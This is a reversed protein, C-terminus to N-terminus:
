SPRAVDPGFVRAFSEDDITVGIEALPKVVDRLAADLAVQGLEGRKLFGLRYEDVM